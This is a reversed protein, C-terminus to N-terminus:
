IHGFLFFILMFKSDRDEKIITKMIVGRISHQIIYKNNLIISLYKFRLSLTCMYLVCIFIVGM